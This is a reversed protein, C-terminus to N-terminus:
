TGSSDNFIFGGYGLSILEKKLIGGREFDSVSQNWYHSGSHFRSENVVEEFTIPEQCQAIIEDYRKIDRKLVKKIGNGIKANEMSRIISLRAKEQEILINEITNVLLGRNKPDRLDLLKRGEIKYTFLVTDDKAYKEAFEVETSYFYIKAENKNRGCHNFNRSLDLVFVNSKDIIRQFEKSHHRYLNMFTDDIIVICIYLM